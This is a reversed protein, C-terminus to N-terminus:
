RSNPPHPRVMPDLRDRCAVLCFNAATAAVMVVIAILDLCTDVQIETAMVYVKLEELWLPPSASFAAMRGPTAWSQRFVVDGVGYLTRNYAGHWDLDVM